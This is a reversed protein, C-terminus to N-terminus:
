KIRCSRLRGKHGGECVLTVRDGKDVEALDDDDFGSCSIDRLSGKARLTLYPNGLVHRSIRGVEGRIRIRKDKFRRDAKVENDAYAQALETPTVRIPAPKKPMGARMGRLVSPDTAAGIVFLGCCSFAIAAGIGGAIWMVRKGEGQTM